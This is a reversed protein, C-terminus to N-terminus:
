NVFLLKIRYNLNFFNFKLFNTKELWWAYADVTLEAVFCEYNINIVDIMNM